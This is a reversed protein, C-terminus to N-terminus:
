MVGWDGFAVRYLNYVVLPFFRPEETRYPMQLFRNSSFYAVFDRRYGGGWRLTLFFFLFCRVCFSFSYWTYRLININVYEGGGGGRGKEERGRLRFIAAFCM